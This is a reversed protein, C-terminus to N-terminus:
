PQVAKRTNVAVARLTKVVLEQTTTPDDNWAPVPRGVHAVIAERAPRMVDPYAVALDRATIAVVHDLAVLACRGGPTSQRDYEDLQYWAGEPELLEATADLVDAVTGPGIATM